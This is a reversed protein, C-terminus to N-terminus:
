IRCVLESHSQLESTHEESRNTIESKHNRIKLEGVEEEERRGRRGKRNFLNQEHDEIKRHGSRRAARRGRAKLFDVQPLEREALLRRCSRIGSARRRPRMWQEAWPRPRAAWRPVTSAAM